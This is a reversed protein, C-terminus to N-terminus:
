ASWREPLYAPALRHLRRRTTRLIHHQLLWAGSHLRDCLLSTFLLGGLNDRISQPRPTSVETLLRDAIRSRLDRRMLTEPLDGIAVDLWEELLGIAYVVAALVGFAQARDAVQHWNLEPHKNLLLKLDYLWVLRVFCHGTAHAALYVFEDEPSLVLITFDDRFRVPQARALMETAPLEVGFGSYARFHLEIPATAPRSLSLHHGYQLLYEASVGNSVLFGSAIFADLARAVDDPRILLDIDICHRASPTSYLRASLVPGKLACAEVGASSLIAVAAELGRILHAHWMEEIARRRIVTERLEAAIASNQELAADIVGLIGHYSAQAVFEEWLHPGGVSGIETILDTLRDPDGPLARLISLVTRRVQTEHGTVTSRM